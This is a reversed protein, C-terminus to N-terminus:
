IAFQVYCKQSVSSIRITSLRIKMLYLENMDRLVDHFDRHISNISRRFIEVILRFSAEQEVIYAYMELKERLLVSQRSDRLHTHQRMWRELALFTMRSMRLIRFIRSGYGGSNSISDQMYKLGFGANGFSLTRSVTYPLAVQIVTAVLVVLLIRLVRLLVQRRAHRRRRILQPQNMLISLPPAILLAILPPSSPPSSAQLRSRAPVLQVEPPVNISGDLCVLLLLM